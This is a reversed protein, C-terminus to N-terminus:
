AMPGTIRILIPGYSWTERRLYAVHRRDLERAGLAGRQLADDALGAMGAVDRGIMLLFEQIVAQHALM